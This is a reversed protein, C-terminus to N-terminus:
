RVVGDGVLVVMLWIRVGFSWSGVIKRGKYEKNWLGWGAFSFRVGWEM